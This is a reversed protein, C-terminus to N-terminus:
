WRGSSRFRDTALAKAVLVCMDDRQPRSDMAAAAEDLLAAVIRGAPQRAKSRAVALAREVGFLTGDSLGVEPIGDTFVVVADEDALPVAPSSPVANDNLLGLPMGTSDLVATEGSARLLYGRHGAAAYVLTRSPPDIKAFFLTVFRETRVDEAFLRNTRTVIEGPDDVEVALAHIYARVEAMLLAAGVGHGSVDAVVLGIRGNLMPVFDYYDGGTAEAPRAAGALDFGPLTPPTEPLLARQVTRAVEFQGQSYNVKAQLDANETRLLAEARALRRFLPEIMLVGALLLGSSVVTTIASSLRALDGEMFGDATLHGGEILHALSVARRVTMVLLGLSVLTWSWHIGYVRNLRFALVTAASQVLISVALLIVVM